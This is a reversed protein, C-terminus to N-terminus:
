VLFHAFGLGSIAAAKICLTCLSKVSLVEDNEATTEVGDELKSNSIACLYVISRMTEAVFLCDKLMTLIYKLYTQRHMWIETLESKDM